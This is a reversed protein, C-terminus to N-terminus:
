FSAPKRYFKVIVNATTFQTPVKVPWAPLPELFSAPYPYNVTAFIQLVVLQCINYVKGMGLNFWIDELWDVLDNVDKLVDCLKFTDYLWSLGDKSSGIRTLADWSM